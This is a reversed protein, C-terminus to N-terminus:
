PLLDMPSMVLVNIEVHILKLRIPRATRTTLDLITSCYIPFIFNQVTHHFYIHTRISIFYSFCASLMYM